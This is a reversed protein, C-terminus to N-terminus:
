LKFFAAIKQENTSLRLVRTGLCQTFRLFTTTLHVAKHVAIFPRIQSDYIERFCKFIGILLDASQGIHKKTTTRYMPYIRLQALLRSNVEFNSAQLKFNSNRVRLM